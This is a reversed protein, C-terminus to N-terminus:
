AAPLFCALSGIGHRQFIAWGERPYQVETQSSCHGPPSCREKMSISLYRWFVVKSSLSLKVEKGLFSINLIRKHQTPFGAAKRAEGLSPQQEEGFWMDGTGATNLHELSGPADGITLFYSPFYICIRRNHKLLQMSWSPFIIHLSFFAVSFSIAKIEM